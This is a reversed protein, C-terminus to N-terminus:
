EKLLTKVIARRIKKLLRLFLIVKRKDKSYYILTILVKIIKIVVLHDNSLSKFFILFDTHNRFHGNQIYIHM